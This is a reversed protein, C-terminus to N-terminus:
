EYAIRSAMNDILIGGFDPQVADPLAELIEQQVTAVKSYIRNPKPKEKTHIGIFSYNSFYDKGTEATTAASNGIKGREEMTMVRDGAVWVDSAPVGGIPKVGIELNVYRGKPYQETIPNGDILEIIEVESVIQNIEELNRGVLFNQEKIISDGILLLYRPEFVRLASIEGPFNNIGAAFFPFEVLM